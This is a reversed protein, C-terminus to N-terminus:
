CCAGGGRTEEVRERHRRVAHSDPGHHVYCCVLNMAGSVPALDAYDTNADEMDILEMVWDEASRAIARTRLYPNWVRALVTNLANLLWSKPHYNDTPAITNRHAAWDIRDWPEVFLEGRLARITDTEEAQWRKSWLYSMPLFVMRMHIWWRWPHFPVWDPLLWLEPPTPNVVDWGAVGLVALWFKVWHPAHTAGGLRHLTARATYNMATGLVTSEGEIHLGWGGDDPHARAFLYNKIETAKYWPIPTKTAYWAFVVGPLLFMPGGYECGWHGSPLQLKEFFTLGNRVADLPSAPAPLTPLDLPLGLYYKDAYSQPWEQLAEDDELYHWTHRSKDDRMRWRLRDTKDEIRPRKLESPERSAPTDAGRKKVDTTGPLTEAATTQAAAVGNTKNKAM